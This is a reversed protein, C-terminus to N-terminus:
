RIGMARDFLFLPYHYPYKHLLRQNRYVSPLLFCKQAMCKVPLLGINLKCAYNLLSFPNNLITFQGALIFIKSALRINRDFEM